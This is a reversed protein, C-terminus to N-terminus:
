VQYTAVMTNLQVSLSALVKSNDSVQHATAVSSAVDRHLNTVNTNIEEAVLSQEEAATAIQANMDNIHTIAAAIQMLSEGVSKAAVVSREALVHSGGIVEVAQAAGTQLRSIMQQIEETADQTRAALTRVEDAVVAFGRGQAGARAAEIAANLALLNTQSAIGQIVELIKHIQRSDDDVLAVVDAAKSIEAALADIGAISESVVQQGQQALGDSVHASSSAEAANRAVESVTATMENMATAVMDLERKQGEISGLMSECAQRTESGSQQLKGAALSVQQLSQQFTQLLRNFTTALSSLEDHGVVEVHQTLDLNSTVQSMTQELTKLPQLISRFVLFLMLSVLSFVLVLLSVARTQTANIAANARQQVQTRVQAEYEVLESFSARAKQAFPTAGTRYEKWANVLDFTRRPSDALAAMRQWGDQLFADTDAEAVQVLQRLRQAEQPMSLKNVGQNLEIFHADIANIYREVRDINQQYDDGLMISRNLRSVYNMDRSIKLVAVETLVSGQEYEEFHAEVQALDWMLVGTIAIGSCVVFGSLFVLRAKISWQTLWQM